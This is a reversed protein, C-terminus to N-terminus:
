AASVLPLILVYLTHPTVITGIYCGISPSLAHPYCVLSFGIDEELVNSYYFFELTSGPELTVAHRHECVLLTRNQM